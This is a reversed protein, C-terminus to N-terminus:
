FDESKILTIVPFIVYNFHVMNNNIKKIRYQMLANPYLQTNITINTYIGNNYINKVQLKAQSLTQSFSFLIYGTYIQNATMEIPDLGLYFNSVITSTYALTINPLDLDTKRIVYTDDTVFKTPSDLLNFTSFPYCKNSKEIM